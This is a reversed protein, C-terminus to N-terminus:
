DYRVGVFAAKESACRLLHESCDSGCQAHMGCSADEVHGEVVVSLLKEMAGLPLRREIGDSEVLGLCCSEHLSNVGSRPPGPWWSPVHLTYAGRLGLERARDERGNAYLPELDIIEVEGGCAVWRDVLGSNGERLYLETTASPASDYAAKVASSPRSAHLLSLDSAHLHPLHIVLLSNSRSVASRCDLDADLHASDFLSHSLSHPV